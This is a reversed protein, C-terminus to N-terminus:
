ESNSNIWLKLKIVIQTENCNYTQWLKLYIMIQTIKSNFTKKCNFHKDGNWTGDYNNLKTVIKTLDWNSIHGLKLKTGIQTQGCKVITVIQPQDCNSNQGM